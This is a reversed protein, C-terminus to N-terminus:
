CNRKGTCRPRILGQNNLFGPAEYSVKTTKEKVFAKKKAKVKVKPTKM